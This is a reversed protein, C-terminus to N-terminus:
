WFTPGATINGVFYFLTSGGAQGRVTGTQQSRCVSQEFGEEPEEAPM